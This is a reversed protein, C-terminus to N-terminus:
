ARRVSPGLIAVASSVGIGVWAMISAALLHFDGIMLVDFALRGGLADGAWAGLIAALLVIPVRGSGTGRIFVYLSAHFVGVLVALILAPDLSV